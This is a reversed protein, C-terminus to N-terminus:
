FTIFAQCKSYRYYKDHVNLYLYSGGQLKLYLLHLWSYDSMGKKKQKKEYEIHM